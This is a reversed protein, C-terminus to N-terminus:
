SRGSHADGGAVERWEAAEQKELRSPTKSKRVVPSKNELQRLHSSNEDDTQATQLYIDKKKKSDGCDM